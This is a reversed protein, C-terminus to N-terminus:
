KTSTTRPGAPTNDDMGQLLPETIHLARPSKRQQGGEVAINNATAVRSSPLLSILVIHYKYHRYRVKDISCRGSGHRHEYSWTASSLILIHCDEANSAVVTRCRILIVQYKFYWHMNYLNTSEASYQRHMSHHKTRLSPRSQPATSLARQCVCVQWSAVRSHRLM